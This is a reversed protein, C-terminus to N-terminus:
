RKGQSPFDLGDRQADRYSERALRETEVVYYLRSDLLSPQQLVPPSSSSWTQSAISQLGEVDVSQFNPIQPAPTSALTTAQSVLTSTIPTKLNHSPPQDPAPLYLSREESCDSDSNIHLDSMSLIALDPSSMSVKAPSLPSLSSLCATVTRQEELIASPGQIQTPSRPHLPFDQSTLCSTPSGSPPGPFSQSLSDAWTVLGPFSGPPQLEGKKRVQLVATGPHGM